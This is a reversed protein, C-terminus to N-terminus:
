DVDNATVNRVFLLPNASDDSSFGFIRQTRGFGLAFRPFSGETHNGTRRASIFTASKNITLTVLLGNGVPIDRM